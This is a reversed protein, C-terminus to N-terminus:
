VITTLIRRLFYGRRITFRVILLAVSTATPARNRISRATRPWVWASQARSNSILGCIRLLHSFPLRWGFISVSIRIHAEVPQVSSKM